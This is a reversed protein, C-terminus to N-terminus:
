AAVGTPINHALRARLVTRPSVNLRTAIQTDNLGRAALETVDDPHVHGPAPPEDPDPVCAPDDIDAWAMPGHWGAAMAQNRAKEAYRTPPAPRTALQRYLRAVRSATTIRTHPRLGELVTRLAREAVGSQRAIEPLSYGLVALAQLRRRTGTTDVLSRAIPPDQDLRINLIAAATTRSCGAFRASLILSVTTQHLGSAAAIQTQTWGRASLREAHARVQTNSTRRRVGNSRDYKAHLRYRQCPKCDCKHLVARSYTGHAPPRNV